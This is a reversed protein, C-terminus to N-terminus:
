NYGPNQIMEPNTNTQLESLPIPFLTKNLNSVTPIVAQARGTRVLDFWRHGEFAFEVRREKEIALILDNVNNAPTPALGARNRITDIDAIVADLDPSIKNVEAEARILFMDALRLIIVNDEGKSLDSYKIAYANVGDMAISLNERADLAEYANILDSTPQVERRGNLTKPFNNEAIRNRDTEIFDIEFITEASGDASFVSGFNPLLTYGGDKIVEDAKEWALDYDGKYLYVRALLATAAYKSARIKKSSSPALNQEAFQLDEIIQTYVDSVPIRPANLQGVGVTPSTKVPIAGFFNLLNFHSLARLFYLEGLAANKEADTMDQIGPVKVIVNNAVNIGDYMAMWLGEVAGNEPLISNNDVEGYDSNTADVPHELNDAALDAFLCFTRGYYSLSQLSSYSGMIGREIGAKDKFAASAPISDTPEIDLVNCAASLLLIGSIYFLKKM